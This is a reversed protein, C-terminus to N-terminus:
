GQDLSSLRSDDIIYSGAKTNPAHSICGKEVLARLARHYTPHTMGAVLPHVRIAESRVPLGGVSLRSIAYLVDREKDSLRDLGIEAEMTTLMRRVEVVYEFIQSM